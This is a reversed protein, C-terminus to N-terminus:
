FICLVPIGSERFSAAIKEKVEDLSPPKEPNVEVEALLREGSKTFIHFEWVKRTPKLAFM